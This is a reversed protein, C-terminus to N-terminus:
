ASVVDGTPAESTSAAEPKTEPREHQMQERARLLVTRMLEALQHDTWMGLEPVLALHPRAAVDEVKVVLQVTDGVGYTPDDEFCRAWWENTSVTLELKIFLDQLRM